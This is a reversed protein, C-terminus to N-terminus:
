DLPPVRRSSTLTTGASAAVVMVLATLTSLRLQQGLVLIGALAAVAPELSMLLGFTAARVRRLATLEFSYPIVSSLVAVALGGALVGPRLLADGGQVLGAPVMLVAGVALAIALGQLGSFISGVRQSLLIYSAWFTGALLALLLGVPDLGSSGSGGASGFALLAVGGGALTAWVLDLLRRSGLIAVTLPGAFEVTVAPGLPLRALAEYFTWNMGALAVGFAAVTVLERRPRGALRPRTIPLLLAAALALRLLVVGAPGAQDFLTTAFASGFQVSAIGGLILLPAPLADLETRAAM